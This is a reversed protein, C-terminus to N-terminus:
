LIFDLTTIRLAALPWEIDTREEWLEYRRESFKLASVKQIKLVCQFM